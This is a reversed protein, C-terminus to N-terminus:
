GYARGELSNLVRLIRATDPDISGSGAARTRQAAQGILTALTEAAYEQARTYFTGHWARLDALTLDGLSRTPALLMGKHGLVIHGLEHLVIHEQHPLSTRNEHYILDRDRAEIWMGPLSGGLPLGYRLIPRGRRAAIQAIFTHLSFPVPLSLDPLRAECARRIVRQSEHDDM